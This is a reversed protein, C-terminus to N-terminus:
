EYFFDEKIIQATKLSIGIMVWSWTNPMNSSSSIGGLIFFSLMGIVIGAIGKINHKNSEIFIRHNERMISIYKLIYITSIPLGFVVILELWWNHMSLIGYTNNPGIKEFFQGINGMGIGLGWSQRVYEIGNKILNIRANISNKAILEKESFAKAIYVFYANFYYLIKERFLLLFLASSIVVFCLMIIKKRKNLTLFFYFFIVAIGLILGIENARSSCFFVLVLDLIALVLYKKKKDDLFFLILFVFFGFGLATALDNTNGLMSIPAHMNTYVYKNFTDSIFIYNKFVVEFVSLSLHILIAFSIIQYCTKLKDVTDINQIILLVSFIGCSFLIYEVIWTKINLAFFISISGILFWIWWFSQQKIHEFKKIFNLTCSIFMMPLIIRIGNLNGLPTAVKALEPLFALLIMSYTLCLNWKGKDIGNIYKKIM